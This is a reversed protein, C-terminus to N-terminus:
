PMSWIAIKGATWSNDYAGSGAAFQRGDPSWALSWVPLDHEKLEVLKQGTDPNWLIVKNDKGSSALYHGDPSWAIGRVWDKHGRLERILNGTGNWLRVVGDQHASALVSGDPSWTIGNTDSRKTSYGSIEKRQEGTLADWLYIHGDWTGVAILAGVPSWSLSIISSMDSKVQYRSVSKGTEAGRIDVLGTDNGVVVQKGDASWAVCFAWGTELKSIEEGTEAKWIRTTGDASGSVIKKGDPAWAVGWVFSEHGSLTRIAKKTKVDWLKVQKYGASALTRGDPSWALSYVPGEIGELLATLKPPEMAPLPTSTPPPAPQTPSIMQEASPTLAPHKAGPTVPKEVQAGTCAALFFDFLLASQWLFGTIKKNAM